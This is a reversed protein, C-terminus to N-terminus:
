GNEALEKGGVALERLLAAIHGRSYREFEGRDLALLLPIVMEEEQALHPILIEHHKKLAHSFRLADGKSEAEYVRDEAAGLSQHHMELVAMSVGYKAHLYPYLKSEEYGEHGKMARKWRRFLNALDARPPQTSAASWARLSEKVLHASINRFNDHSGLLLAQNPYNAHTPWESRPLAPVHRQM